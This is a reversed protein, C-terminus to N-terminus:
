FKIFNDDDFISIDFIILIIKVFIKFNFSVIFERYNNIEFLLRIFSKKM